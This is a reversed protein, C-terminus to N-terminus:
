KNSGKTNRSRFFFRYFVSDRSISDDSSDRRGRTFEDYDGHRARQFYENLFHICMLVAVVAGLMIIVFLLEGIAGILSTTM